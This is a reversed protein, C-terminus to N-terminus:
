WYGVAASRPDTSPSLHLTATSNKEHDIEVPIIKAPSPKLSMVVPDATRCAASQALLGLYFHPLVRDNVM